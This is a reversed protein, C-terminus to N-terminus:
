TAVRKLVTRIEKRVTEIDQLLREATQRDPDRDQLYMKLLGGLRGEDAHIKALAAVAQLDLASRPTSGMAAARLFSSATLGAAKARAKIAKRDEATVYARMPNIRDRAGGKATV